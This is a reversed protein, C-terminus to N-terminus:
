NLAYVNGLKRAQFVTYGKYTMHFQNHTSGYQAGKSYIVGASLLNADFQPCYLTNTLTLTVTQGDVLVQLHVTGKGQVYSVKGHVDTVSENCPTLEDGFLIIDHTASWDSGTDVWWINDKYSGYSSVNARASFVGGGRANSDNGNGRNSGRGRGRGGGRQQDQIGNARQKNALKTKIADEDTGHADTFEKTRKGPHIWPCSNRMHSKGGCVFCEQRARSTDRSNGRGSGRGRGRVQMSKSSSSEVDGDFTLIKEVLDEIGPLDLAKADKAKKTTSSAWTDRVRAKWDDYKPSLGRLFQHVLFWEEFGHDLAQLKRQATQFATTYEVLSKFKDMSPNIIPEALLVLTNLSYTDYKAKLDKYKKQPTLEIEGAEKELTASPGEGIVAEMIATLKAQRTELQRVETVNAGDSALVVKQNKSENTLQEWLEHFSLNIKLSKNWAQWDKHSELVPIEGTLTKLNLTAM